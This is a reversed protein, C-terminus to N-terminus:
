HDPKLRRIVLTSGAAEPDDQIDNFPKFGNIDFEKFTIQEVEEFGMRKVARLGYTNNPRAFAIKAGKTWAAELIWRGCHTMIGTGRYRETIVGADIFLFPYGKAQLNKVEEINFFVEALKSALLRIPRFEDCRTPDVFYEFQDLNSILLATALGIVKDTSTDITIASFGNQAVKELQAKYRRFHIDKPIRLFRAMPNHTQLEKTMLWAAETIRQQSLVEYKLELKDYRMDTNASFSTTLRRVGTEKRVANQILQGIVNRPHIKAM